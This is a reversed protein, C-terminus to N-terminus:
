KNFKKKVAEVWEVDLSVEINTWDKEELENFIKEIENEDVKLESDNEIEIKIENVVQTKQPEEEEEEIEKLIKAIEDEDIKLEPDNEIEKLIDDIDKDFDIENNEEKTAFYNEGVDEYGRWWNPLEAERLSNQIASTVIENRIEKNEEYIRERLVNNLLEDSYAWLIEEPKDEVWDKLTFQVIINKNEDFRFFFYGKELFIHAAKLIIFKNFIQTDIVLEFKKWEIKESLFSEM